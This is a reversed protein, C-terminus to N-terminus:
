PCRGPSFTGGTSECDEPLIGEGFFIGDDFFGWDNCQIITINHCCGAPAGCLPDPCRGAQWTGRGHDECLSQLLGLDGGRSETACALGNLLNGRGLCCGWGADSPVPCDLSLTTTTSSSTTTTTSSLTTTTTSASRCNTFHRTEHSYLTGGLLGPSGIPDVYGDVRLRYYGDGCACELRGPIRSSVLQKLDVTSASLKFEDEPDFYRWHANAPTSGDPPVNKFYGGPLLAPGTNYGAPTPEPYPGPWDELWFAWPLTWCKQWGSVGDPSVEASARVEMRGTAVDAQRCNAKYAKAQARMYDNSYWAKVKICQNQGQFVATAVAHAEPTVHLIWAALLAGLLRPLFRSSVAM